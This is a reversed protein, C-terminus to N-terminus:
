VIIMELTNRTSGDDNKKHAADNKKKKKSNTNVCNKLIERMLVTFDLSLSIQLFNSINIRSFIEM